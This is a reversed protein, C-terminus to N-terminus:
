NSIFKDFDSTNIDLEKLDTSSRASISDGKINYPIIEIEKNYFRCEPILRNARDFQIHHYILKNFSAHFSNYIPRTSTITLAQELVKKKFTYIEKFMKFNLLLPYNHSVKSINKDGFPVVNKLSSFDKFEKQTSEIENTYNYFCKKYILKKNLLQFTTFDLVILTNSYIIGRKFQIDNLLTNYYELRYKDKILELIQNNFKSNCIIILNIDINKEKLYIYYELAYFLIGTIKQVQIVLNVEPM